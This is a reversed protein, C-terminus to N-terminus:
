KYRADDLLQEAKTDALMGREQATDFPTKGNDAKAAGDAGYALLLEVAVANGEFAAMHVPTFGGDARATIDAGNSILSTLTAASGFAAAVHM